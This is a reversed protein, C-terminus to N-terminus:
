LPTAPDAQSAGQGVVIPRDPIIVSVTTGLGLGPSSAEARGGHAEAIARVISLGLGAGAARVRSQDARYFRDFIRDVDTAALGTGDDTVSIRIAGGAAVTGAGGPVGAGAGAGAGAGSGGAGAGAGAGSGGAGAGAGAGGGTGAGGAGSGGGRGGEDGAERMTAIVISGGAETYRAANDVLNLLVQKLRDRDGAVVLGLPVVEVMVRRGGLVGGLETVVEGAVDALPVEGITLPMRGGHDELQSLLLLDTALRGLRGIERNMATLVREVATEDGQDIGLLLLETMGGLAALPTRLEHSADAVFRRQAEASDELRDVMTDFAVGLRGIETPVDAAGVRVGRDGASIRQAAGVVRDLPRLAVRAIPLGLGIGLVIAAILGLILALRLQALVADGPELSTAVAVIALVTGDDARITDVVLLARPSRGDDVRRVPEGSAVAKNVEGLTPVPWPAVDPIPVSAAIVSGDPWLVVVATDRGGIEAVLTHGLKEVAGRGPVAALPPGAPAGVAGGAGAAVAGAGVAGVGGAVVGVASSASPGVLVSAGPKPKKTPKPAPTANPDKPPKKDLERVVVRAVDASTRAAVDDLLFSELGRYLAFGLVLVIAVVLAVYTATLRWRISLTSLSRAV